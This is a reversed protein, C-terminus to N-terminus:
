GLPPVLDADVVRGDRLSLVWTSGKPAPPDDHGALERVADPIVGGQSCVAVPVGSALSRVLAVLAGSGADERADVAEELAVGLAAAAGAVTDRCRVLPATLVRQVGYLPLLRSLAEAQRRGREDLPRDDDPGDWASRSGARAHRVLLVRGTTPGGDAFAALPPGPARQLAEELPLWALEDVESGPAFDGELWCMEWWRVVKPLDRGRDLVRYRTEGLSRGVVVTAGTEEHVERVAGLVDVEDQDLKGKPLSWDDYKPRHVLAVELGSGTRRWLVGGAARVTREPV